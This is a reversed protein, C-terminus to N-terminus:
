ILKTLKKMAEEITNSDAIIKAIELREHKKEKENTKSELRKAIINQLGRIGTAGKKWIQSNKSLVESKKVIRYAEDLRESHNRSRLYPYNTIADRRIIPKYNRIREAVKRVEGIRKATLKGIKPM